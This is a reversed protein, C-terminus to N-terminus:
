RADEEVRLDSKEEKVLFLKLKNELNNDFHTEQRKM